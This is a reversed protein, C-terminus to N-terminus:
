VNVPCLDSLFFGPIQEGPHAPKLSDFPFRPEAWAVPLRNRGWHTRDVPLTWERGGTAAV